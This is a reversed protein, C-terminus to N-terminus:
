DELKYVEVSIKKSKQVEDLEGSFLNNLDDETHLHGKQEEAKAEDEPLPAGPPPQAAAAQMKQANAQGKASYQNYWAM